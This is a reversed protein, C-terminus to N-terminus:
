GVSWGLYDIGFYLLLAVKLMRAVLIWVFFRYFNMELAGCVILIPDGIFPIWPFLLLISFGYKNIINEARKETKPNRKVLWNHVGRSGIYYNTISGLTSGVVAIVFVSLPDLVKLSLLIAPESPLPIISASLLTAIFLNFHWIYQNFFIIIFEFM